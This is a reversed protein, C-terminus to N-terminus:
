AKALTSGVNVSSTQGNADYTGPSYQTKGRLISLAIEAAQRNATIINGNVLNQRQCRDLLLQLRQFSNKLRQKDATPIMSLCQDIGARSMSLGMQSLLQQQQLTLSALTESIENKLRNIGEIAAADRKILAQNEDILTKEMHEAAIIQQQLLNEMLHSSDRVDTM